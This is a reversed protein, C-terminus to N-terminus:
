GTIIKYFPQRLRGKNFLYISNFRSIGVCCLIKGLFFGPIQGQRTCVQGLMSKNLSRQLKMSIWINMFYGVLKCYVGLSGSIWNYRTCLKKKKQRYGVTSVSELLFGSIRGREPKYSVQFEFTQAGTCTLPFNM